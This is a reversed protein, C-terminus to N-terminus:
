DRSRQLLQEVERMRRTLDDLRLAVLQSISFYQNAAAQFSELMRSANAEQALEQSRQAAVLSNFRSPDVGLPGSNGNRKQKPPPESTASDAPLKYEAAKVSLDNLLRMDDQKSRLLARENALVNQVDGAISADLGAAASQADSLLADFDPDDYPTM